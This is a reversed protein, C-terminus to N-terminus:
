REDNVGIRRPLIKPVDAFNVFRHFSNDGYLIALLQRSITIFASAISIAIFTRSTKIEFIASTMSTRLYLIAFHRKTERLGFGLAFL